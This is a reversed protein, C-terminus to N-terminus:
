RCWEVIQAWSNTSVGPWNDLRNHPTEWQVALTEGDIFAEAWRDLTATKDDILVDGAILHKASCAIVREHPIDFPNRGM